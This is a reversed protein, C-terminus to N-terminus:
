HTDTDLERAAEKKIEDTLSQIVRVTDATDHHNNLEALRILHELRRHTDPDAVWNVLLKELAKM